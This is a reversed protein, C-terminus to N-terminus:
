IHSQKISIGTHDLPFVAQDMCGINVLKGMKFLCFIEYNRGNVFARITPAFCLVDEFGLFVVRFPSRPCRVAASLELMLTAMQSLGTLKLQGPQRKISYLAQEDYLYTSLCYCSRNRCVHTRPLEGIFQFSLGSLSMGLLASIPEPDCSTMQPPHVLIFVESDKEKNSNKNTNMCFWLVEFLVHM